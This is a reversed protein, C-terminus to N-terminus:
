IKPVKITSIMLGSMVLLIIEQLELPWDQGLLAAIVLLPGAITIPLGLYYTRSHGISFRALRLAGCVPFVATLLYGSWGLRFFQLLFAITAPAIGFSVLDALSDLQKGFESTVNMRRAVRGDVSDFLAAAFILVAALLWRETFALLIAVSGAFLNIVTFLNPIWRRSSM